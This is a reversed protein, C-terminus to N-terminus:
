PYSAIKVRIRPWVNSINDVIATGATLAGNSARLIQSQVSMLNDTRSPGGLAPAVMGRVAPNTGASTGGTKFAWGLWWLGATFAVDPSLAITKLGTSTIAVEGWSVGATYDPAGQADPPFYGIEAVAGADTAATEVYLDVEDFSMGTPLILPMVDIRLLSNVTSSSPSRTAAYNTAGPMAIYGGVPPTWLPLVPLSAGGGPAPVWTPTGADSGIVYEDTATGTALRAADLAGSTIQSADLGLEDAGGDQHSTAHSTPTRADSFRSDDGAAVTGSTTGVDLPAATGLDAPQTATDALSGQATTAFSGRTGDSLAYQPHDDDTLGTLAGHDTVGGGGGTAAPIISIVRTVADVTIRRDGGTATITM